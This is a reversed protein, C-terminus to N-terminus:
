ATLTIVGPTRPAVSFVVEPAFLSCWERAETCDAATGGILEYRGGAKRVLRASGFAAIVRGGAPCAGAPFVHFAAQTGFGIMKKMIM